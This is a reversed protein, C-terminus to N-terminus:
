LVCEGNLVIVLTTLGCFAPEPQTQRCFLTRYDDPTHTQLINLLCEELSVLLTRMNCIHYRLMIYIIYLLM